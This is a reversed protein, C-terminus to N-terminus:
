NSHALSRKWCVREFGHRSLFYKSSMLSSQTAFDTTVNLQMEHVSTDFTDIHMDIDPGKCRGSELPLDSIGVPPRENVLFISTCKVVHCYMMYM